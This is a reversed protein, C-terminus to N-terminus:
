PREPARLEALAVPGGPDSGLATVKGKGGHRALQNPLAAFFFKFPRGLHLRQILWAPIPKLEVPVPHGRFHIEVAEVAMSTRGVVYHIEQDLGANGGWSAYLDGGEPLVGCGQGTLGREQLALMSEQTVDEAAQPDGLIGVAIRYAPRWHREVLAEAAAASGAVAARVLEEDRAPTAAM